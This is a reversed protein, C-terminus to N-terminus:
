MQIPHMKITAMAETETQTARRDSLVTECGDGLGAVTLGGLRTVDDDFGAVALGDLGTMM